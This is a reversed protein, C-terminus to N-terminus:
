MHARDHCFEVSELWCSCMYRVDVLLGTTAAPQQSSPKSAQKSPRELIVMYDDNGGGHDGGERKTCTQQICNRNHPLFSRLLCYTTVADFLVLRASLTKAGM